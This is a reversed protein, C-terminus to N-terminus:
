PRSTCFTDDKISEDSCIKAATAYAKLSHLETKEAATLTTKKELEIIRETKYKKKLQIRKLPPIIMALISKKGLFAMAIDMMLWGIVLGAVLLGVSFGGASNQNFPNPGPGAVPARAGAAPSPGSTNMSISIPTVTTDSM